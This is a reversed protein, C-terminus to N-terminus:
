APESIPAFSRVAPAISHPRLHLERVKPEIGLLGMQTFCISLFSQNMHTTQNIFTPLPKYLQQMGMIMTIVKTRQNESEVMGERCVQSMQEGM